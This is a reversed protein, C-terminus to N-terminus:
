RLMLWVVLIILLLAGAAGAGFKIALPQWPHIRARQPQMDRERQNAQEEIKKYLTRYRVARDDADQKSAKVLALSQFEKYTALARFGEKEDHSAKNNPALRNDALMKQVEATSLKQVVKRGTADKVRVFWQNPDVVPYPRMDDHSSVPKSAAGPKVPAGTPELFRLRPNALQLSELDKILETCNQYRYKPLKATMKTIILDLREPVESNLQRAPPFTGTEKGRIVDLLTKGAFPPAGTVFCYLMCGLAYIDSRRDTEKANKAQELPMYWPTGVAHGTQTLGMDDDDTKVMGLDAVKVDGRKTILINDPKIDRHVFGLDHAYELARAVTIVIQLADGLQLRGIQDIWKQMSQGDVYELAVYHWGKDEDIGFAQVINPHDLRGMVRGERYLREVLKPNKAIHPFLVKLAVDREFSIQKAKYVAGMAGEGIKGVLRYDGLVTPEKVVSEKITPEDSENDSDALDPSSPPAPTQEDTVQTSGLSEWSEDTSEDDRPGVAADASSSLQREGPVNHPKGANPRAPQMRSAKKALAGVGPM